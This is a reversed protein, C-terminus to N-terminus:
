EVSVPASLFGRAAIVGDLRHVMRSVVATDHIVLSAGAGRYFTRDIAALSDAHETILFSGDPFAELGVRPSDYERGDIVEFLRVFFVPHGFPGCEPSRDIRLSPFGERHIIIFRSSSRSFHKEILSSINEFFHTTVAIPSASPM